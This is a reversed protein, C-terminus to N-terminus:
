RRRKKTSRKKKGGELEEVPLEEELTAYMDEFGMQRYEGLKCRAVVQEFREQATCAVQLLEFRDKPWSAIGSLYQARHKDDIIFPMIDHRLCEKFMILRGVRGNGDEFPVIREFQVHFDLIAKLDKEPQEEYADILEDMKDPIMQAEPTEKYRLPVKSSRYAGAVVRNKRMDVTGFMLMYHINRILKESLPEGIQDLISDVCFLHNLVEICDSVKMPEFSERVKGKRFISEVQNRTLRNSAMRCSSYTFYIQVYDYLGHFNRKSKQHMLRKALIPLEVAEKPPLSTRDPKPTDAPILWVGDRFKAKPVRHERCYKRVLVESVNWKKAAEVASIYDM